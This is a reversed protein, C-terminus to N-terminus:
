GGGGGGADKRTDTLAFERPVWFHSLDLCAHDGSPVLSSRYVRDSSAGSPVRSTCASSGSV